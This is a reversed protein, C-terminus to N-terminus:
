PQQPAAPPQPVLSLSASGTDVLFVRAKWTGQYCLKGYPGLGPLPPLRMLSLYSCLELLLVSLHKM